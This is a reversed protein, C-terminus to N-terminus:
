VVFVSVILCTNYDCRYYFLKSCAVLFATIVVSLDRNKNM